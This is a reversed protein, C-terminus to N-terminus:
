GTVSTWSTSCRAAWTRPMGLASIMTSGVASSTERGPCSATSVAAPVAPSVGNRSSWTSATDWMAAAALEPASRGPSASSRSRWTESWGGGNPGNTRVM